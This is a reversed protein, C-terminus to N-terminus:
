FSIKQDVVEWIYRVALSRYPKWKESFNYVEEDSPLKDLKYIKQIGKKVGLDNAPCIDKNGGTFLLFNEVTWPGIGKIECLIKKADEEKLNSVLSLDLKKNTILDSIELITRTKTKSLGLNHLLNETSTDISLSKIDDGFKDTFKIFISSAASISLQQGIIIRVLSLFESNKKYDDQIIFNEKEFFNIFKGLKKDRNILYKVIKIRELDKKTM